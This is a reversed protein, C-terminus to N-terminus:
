PYLSHDQRSSKYAFSWHINHAACQRHFAHCIVHMRQPHLKKGLNKPRHDNRRHRELFSIKQFIRQAKPFLNRINGKNVNPTKCAAFLNLFYEAVSKFKYLHGASKYRLRVKYVSHFVSLLTAVAAVGVIAYCPHIRQFHSTVLMKCLLQRLTQFMFNFRQLVFLQLLNEFDETSNDCVEPLGNASTVPPLLPMPASYAFCSAHIPYLTIM